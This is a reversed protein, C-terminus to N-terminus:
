FGFGCALDLVRQGALAGVMRLVTYREPRKLTATQAYADYQSVIPDYQAGLETM